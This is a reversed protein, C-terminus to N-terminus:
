FGRLADAKVMREVQLDFAAKWTELSIYKDETPFRAVMADFIKSLLDISTKNLSYNNLESFTDIKCQQFVGSAVLLERFKKYSETFKQTYHNIGFHVLLSAKISIKKGFPKLLENAKKEMNEAQKVVNQEIVTKVTLSQGQEVGFSTMSKIDKEVLTNISRKFKEWVQQISQLSLTPRKTLDKWGTDKKFGDLLRKFELESPSVSGSASSM